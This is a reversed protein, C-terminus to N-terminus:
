KAVSKISLRINRGAYNIDINSSGPILAELNGTETVNIRDPRSSTITLESNEIISEDGNSWKAKVPGILITEGVKLSLPPGDVLSINIITPGSEVKVASKLLKGEYMIEINSSGPILAQLNGEASILIRDSRSSTIQIKESPIVSEDGNSWKAIVSGIVKEEGVKMTAPLPTELSISLLTPGSECKVSFSITKGEYTININSSGPSLGKLKGAETISIRDSRSSSFKLLNKDIVTEEGNSWIAKVDGIIIEEDIKLQSPFATELFIRSITPAAEVKITIKIIKGLYKIDIVSSGSALATVLGTESVIVRDARSSSFTVDKIDVESIEGNSWKAKLQPIKSEEGIKLQENLPNELYFDVIIPPPLVKTTTTFVKGEFTITINTTGNSIAKIKGEPTIAVRDPRSSVVLIDKPNLETKTGDSWEAQIKLLQDAGINMEKPISELNLNVLEPKGEVKLLTKVTLNSNTAIISVEGSKANPPIFVLGDPNVQAIASNTSKYITGQSANTVDKTTGDTMFAKVILQLKNNILSLNEESPSILLRQVSPKTISIKVEGSLNGYIVKIIATGKEVGQAIQINGNAGISAISPELSTYKIGSNSNTIDKSIGNKIEYVQIQEQQGASLSTTLPTISLYANKSGENVKVTVNKVINGYSVGIIAYGSDAGAPITILGSNNIQVLETNSSTYRTLKNTTIDERKKDTYNLYPQLQYSEGSLLSITKIGLDISFPFGPSITIKGNVNIDFGNFFKEENRDQITMSNDMNDKASIYKLEWKGLEEYKDIPVIATLTDGNRSFTSNFTKGSPKRYNVSASSVGSLEDTIKATLIVHALASSMQKLEITLDELTPAQLDPTTGNIEITCHEFDRQINDVDKYSKISVSNSVNDILYIYDIKWEGLEEYQNIVKSGEYQGTSANKYLSISFQRGSPKKYYVIVSSVGSENDTVDATIKINQGPEGQQSVVSINHLIPSEKDSQENVGSVELDLSSFDYLSQGISISNDKQDNLYVSSVSWVGPEDIRGVSITAEYLKTNANFVFYFSRTTGSPKKYYIIASKVGSLEDTIEATIKVPTTPSLKQNLASINHMKPPELDPTIDPIEVDIANVMSPTFLMLIFMFLILIKKNLSKKM